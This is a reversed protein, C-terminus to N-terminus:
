PLQLIRENAVSALNPALLQAHQQRQLHVLIGRQHLPVLAVHVLDASKHLQARLQVRSSSNHREASATNTPILTHLVITIVPMSNTNHHENSDGRMGNTDRKATSDGCMSNTDRKADGDGCMCLSVCKEWGLEFWELGSNRLEVNGDSRWRM